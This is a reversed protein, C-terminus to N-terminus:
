KRFNPQTDTPGYFVTTMSNTKDPEGPATNLGRIEIGNYESDVADLIWKRESRYEDLTLSRNYYARSIERIMESYSNGQAM